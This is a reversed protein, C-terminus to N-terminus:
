LKSCIWDGVERTGLKGGVDATAMNRRLADAVVNELTTAEQPFGLYDLMMGLTLIAAIPNAVNKGALPPASGHVTEFMSINGPNLNASPALGLGGQLQAGLDSLIDGFMNCTVIVEFQSPDRVLEMALTDVYLHRAEIEPYKVKVEAFTREWLGHGFPLANAKDSMCVKKGHNRRAFEFAYVIIREVGKRTNVDEQIAIEDATGRKFNGGMGVYLGETNERFLVFNVDREARNKLPCLRADLLKVPRQNVYLDLGFRIGLLIDAAHQNSPVRPDGLAGIYIAHYDRRFNQLAVKPLSVGERLYKEAGWDFTVCELPLSRTKILTDLVKVAEATVDIGIGDGPIFAIRKNM